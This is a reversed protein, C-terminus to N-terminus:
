NSHDEEEQEPAFRNENVGLWKLANDCFIKRKLKPSVDAQEVIHGPLIDGYEGLPFPYDTGLVIKDEGFLDVCRNLMVDDHVLSDVWFRQCM